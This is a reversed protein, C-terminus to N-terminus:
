RAGSYVDLPMEDPRSHSIHGTLTLAGSGRLESLSTPKASKPAGTSRRFVDSKGSVGLHFARSYVDCISPSKSALKSKAVLNLPVCILAYSLQISCRNELGTTRPELGLARAVACCSVMACRLQPSFGSPKVSLASRVSIPCRLHDRLSEACGFWDWRGQWQTPAEGKSLSLTM